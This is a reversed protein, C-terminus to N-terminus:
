NFSLQLRKQTCNLIISDYFIKINRELKWEMEKWKEATALPM